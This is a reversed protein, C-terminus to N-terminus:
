LSKFANISKEVIKLSNKWFEKKSIDENFHKKILDEATLSGTDRLVNLYLEKFKEGYEAKKSYLGLSFLYGFLYPYNYFSMHTMSFHLKSAWYMENYETLTDGYWNKWAQRSLEKTEPVTVTKKKRLELYNKEFDFRAPINILFSAAAELDQWLIARKEETSRSNELISDRVLTEAFISATEALTSPYYTQGLKLDRMVWSHYAHGLEHALTIVNKMSGDYTLFVRPERVSAFGACYAGSGRNTTPTADIWRKDYMHKAFSAMDPSFKGFADMVIEMAEPFSIKRGVTKAPYAALLDWPGLKPLGMEKAMLKLAEHGLAREEYTTQMLTDLTARSIKQRRCTSDLYHLENKKSRAQNNELRWGNISNLIASASIENQEWAQNIARYALERKKPDEQYLLNSAKAVGMEENGIKVKLAGSIEQYLKGWAHFGDAEHGALLIEESVNLLFDKDKAGYRLSFDMENVSENNLFKDLYTTPVRKLFLHLPKSAQNLKTSLQLAKNSLNKAEYNLSDVSNAMHSFANLTQLLNSLDLSLRYTERALPITEELESDSLTEIAPILTEFFSAKQKLYSTKEEISQIDKLIQPDQFNKYINSNDWSTTQLETEM